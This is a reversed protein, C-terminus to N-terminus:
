GKEGTEIYKKEDKVTTLDLPKELKTGPVEGNRWWAEKNLKEQKKRHQLFKDKSQRIQLQEKGLKKVNVESQKGFTTPEANPCFNSTYVQYLGDKKCEPCKVPHVPNSDGYEFWKDLEHSCHECRYARIM